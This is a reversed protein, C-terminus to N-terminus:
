KTTYWSFLNAGGKELTVLKSCFFRFNSNGKKFSALM